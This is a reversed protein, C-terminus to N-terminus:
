AAKKMYTPRDIRSMTATCERMPRVKVASTSIATLVMVLRLTHASTPKLTVMTGHYAGFEEIYLFRLGMVLKV